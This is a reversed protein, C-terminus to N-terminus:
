ERYIKSPCVANYEKMFFRSMERRYKDNRGVGAFLSMMDQDRARHLMTDFTRDLLARDQPLGLAARHFVSLSKVLSLNVENSV